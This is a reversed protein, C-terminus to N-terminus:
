HGCYVKKGPRTVLRSSITLKRPQTADVVADFQRATLGAIRWQRIDKIGDPPYVIRVSPCYPALVTALAEAGRRGAQNADNDAVIVAASPRRAKFLTVILKTGGTCCPRGIASFGLDWLAATDTPGEAILLLEACTLGDPIFLGEHGGFMSKKGGDRFRLRIGLVHSEHDVMPFTWARHYSSWGVQLQQLSEPTLGLAAALRAVEAPCAAARCTAASEAWARARAPDSTPQRMRLTVTRPRLPRMAGHGLVHVYGGNAATKRAGEAVRMCVCVAGDQSIGCWDGRGCVPCPQCRSVRCIPGSSQDDNM